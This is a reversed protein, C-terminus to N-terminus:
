MYSVPLAFLKFQSIKLCRQQINTGNCINFENEDVYNCFIVSIVVHGVLCIPEGRAIEHSDHRSMPCAGSVYSVLFPRNHFIDPNKMKKTDIDVPSITAQHLYLITRAQTVM